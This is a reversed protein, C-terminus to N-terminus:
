FYEPDPVGLMM